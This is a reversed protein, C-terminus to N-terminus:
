REKDFIAGWVVDRLWSVTSDYQEVKVKFTVRLVETFQESIGLGAEYAVTENDLRNIVEEHSLLEGSSRKM